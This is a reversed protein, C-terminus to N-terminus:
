PFYMRRERTVYRYTRGNLYYQFSSLDERLPEYVLCMHKGDPGTIEFSDTVCRVYKSAWHLKVAKKICRSVEIEMCHGFQSLADDTLVKLAM